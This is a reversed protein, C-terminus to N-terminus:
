GEAGRRKAHIISELMNTLHQPRVPKSMFYDFGHQYAKARAIDDGLGTIAIIVARPANTQKEFQRIQRAAEFGDMVPMNLDLLVVDPRTPPNQQVSSSLTAPSPASSSSSPENSSTPDQSHAKYVEVAEKGNTALLRPFHNRDAVMTLLKLNIPQSPKNTFHERSSGTAQIRVNDDVLLLLLSEHQQKIEAVSYTNDPSSSVPKEVALVVTTPETFDLIEREPLIEVAPPVPCPAEQVAVTDPMALNLHELTIDLPPSPLASMSSEIVSRLPESPENISAGPCQDNDKTHDVAPAPESACLAKIATALREPGYPQPVFEVSKDQHFRERLRTASAFSECLVLWRQADTRHDGHLNVFDEELIAIAAASEPSCVVVGLDQLTKKVADTLVRHNGSTEDQNTCPEFYGVSCGLCVPNPKNDGEPDESQTKLPITVVMTTGVGKKSQVDIKGKFEKVLQAVLSMGLGTGIALSDEQAFSKFLSNSLFEPSMGIGTDAVTFIAHTEEAENQTVDLSVKVHGEPTYKLANNVINTCLRKWAGVSIVCHVASRPSLDMALDVHPRTRDRNSFYHSYFVADVIAETTRALSVWSSSTSPVKVKVDELSHQDKLPKRVQAKSNIQAFDLLHDIVDVL